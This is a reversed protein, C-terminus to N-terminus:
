LKETNSTWYSIVKKGANNNNQGCLESLDTAFWQMEQLLNNKVLTFDNTCYYKTLHEQKEAPINQLKNDVGGWSIIDYETLLLSAHTDFLINMVSRLKFYDKRMLYKVTMHVHYWYASTLKKIDDQWLNGKPTEEILKKVNENKDFIIDSEKLDTYHIRCMFDDILLSNLLFIDFQFINGDKEVLYGNNIIADGNFGEPWCLLINDCAQELCGEVISESNKFQQGNILLVIDIDSYEDSNGHALSGFYWAGLVSDNNTILNIFSDFINKLKLNM